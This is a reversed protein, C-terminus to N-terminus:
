RLQAEIECRIVRSFPVPVKTGDALEILAQSFKGRDFGPVGEFHVVKGDDDLFDLKCPEGAKMAYMLQNSAAVRAEPETVFGESELVQNLEVLRGSMASNEGYKQATVKIVREKAYDTLQRWIHRATMMLWDHQEPADAKELLAHLTLTICTLNELLLVPHITSLFEVTGRGRTFGNVYLSEGLLTGDVTRDENMMIALDDEITRTSVWLKDALYEVVNTQETQLTRMIYIIREFRNGVDIPPWDISYNEGTQRELWGIFGKCRIIIDRKATTSSKVVERISTPIDGEYDEYYHLFSKRSDDMLLRSVVNRQSAIVQSRVYTQILEVMQDRNL